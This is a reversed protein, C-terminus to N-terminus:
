GGLGFLTKPCNSPIPKVLDGPELRIGGGPIPTEEGVPIRRGEFSVAVVDNGKLEPKVGPPFVATLPESGRISVTLCGNVVQLRGPSMTNIVAVLSRTEAIFPASPAGDQEGTVTRDSTGTRGDDSVPAGQDQAPSQAAEGAASSQTTPTTQTAEGRRQNNDAIPTCGSLVVFLTGLSLLHSPQM